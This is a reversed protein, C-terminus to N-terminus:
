TDYGKTDVCFNNFKTYKYTCSSDLQTQEYQVTTLDYVSIRVYAGCMIGEDHNCKMKCEKDPVMGHKGYDNGAWCFGGNQLGAYKFGNAKAIGFCKKYNGYGEELRKTLDRDTFAYDKFCGVYNEGM